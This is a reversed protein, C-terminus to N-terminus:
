RNGEQIWKQIKVMQRAVEKLNKLRWEWNPSGITAPENMRGEEKIGLIDQMPLICLDAECNLAFRCILDHFHRERYQRNHFFRRLAIKLNPHQQEYWQESTMNDHTGPYVIVHEPFGKKLRKPEMEFQLVRMGYFAYADRLKLVEDRLDGLDEAVIQINPLARYIRDFFDYAPGELWEGEVATDCWAPICWYTDFARFHDIRIIDFQQQAWSLRDVWFRYRDKRMRQWHYIPNGWRQGYQSFYDPPVGAVCTPYGQADLHFSRQNAWVDASDLGVYIPMDGMIQIGRENAYRKIDRWQMYVLFQLFREYGLEDNLEKRVERTKIWDKDAQEWELWSRQDNKRKLAAFMAYTELWPSEACFTEYDARYVEFQKKFSRYAKRFYPEKFARVGPYDVREIFKNFNRISSMKILGCEALRDINIYIADGAYTSYAQYPSNGYGLPHLPLIQWLKVGHKAMLDIWTYAPKGFDGIGQNGPLSSVALLVGCAREM